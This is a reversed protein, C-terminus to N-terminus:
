EKNELIKIEKQVTDIYHANCKIYFALDEKPRVKDSQYRKQKIQLQELENHLYNLRDEDSMKKKNLPGVMIFSCFSYVIIGSVIVTNGM